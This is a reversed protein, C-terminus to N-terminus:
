RAARGVAAPHQVGPRKPALRDTGATAPTAIEEYNTLTARPPLSVTRRSYLDEDPVRGKPTLGSREASRLPEAAPPPVVEEAPVDGPTLSEPALTPDGLAPLFNGSGRQDVEGRIYSNPRTFGYDIMMGADRDAARRYADFYAKDAWPGEAMTVGNYELLSGKRFHVGAIAVNYRGVASYFATEADVQRRQAQFLIEFNTSEGQGAKLGNAIRTKLIEVEENTAIVRNMNTQMAAYERDLNRIAETLQHSFELEMEQLVARDRALNLEQNRVGAMERRFGIPMSFQGGLQYEQFDGQTLTQYASNFRSVQNNLQNQTDERRGDLLKEGFGRARYLAVVDLRPLLFNKAAILRLEEAKVRYKQQRLEIQRALMEQHTSHWDFQVRATTPEDAPRILRGDTAGIGMMYRLNNEATFLESLASEMQTRFFFYQERARPETESQFFNGGKEVDRWADLASDRGKKQAELDRYVYSLRWYAQEVDSVLNRVNAELDALAVDHTLRAIVIGNYFGPISNPGAIQNFQVGAGQLLPHRFEAEIDATYAGRFLNRQNNNLEYNNHNRVFAQGGSALRKSLEVTHQGLDQQFIQQQLNEIFFNQPRDNKQWFLSSSLQADFAALTAESGFRPDTEIISPAFATATGESGGGRTLGTQVAGARQGPQIAFGGFSGLTRVVKSNALATQVAEQLTLEWIEREEANRLTLPEAANEVDGIRDTDVDPEDLQTADEVYHSLDNDSGFYFPRTPMCGTVGLAVICSLLGLNQVLRNM